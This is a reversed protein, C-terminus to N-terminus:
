AEFGARERARALMQPDLGAVRAGYERESHRVDGKLRYDIRTGELVLGLRELITQSGINGDLCGAQIRFAAHEHVAWAVLFEALRTGVQRGWAATPLQYGIEFGGASGEVAVAAGQGLFEGAPSEVVFVAHTPVRGDALTQWQADILPRFFERLAGEPAPVFWLWRGVEPDALMTAIAEIDTPRAYRYREEQDGYRTQM